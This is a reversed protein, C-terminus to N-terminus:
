EHRFKPRSGWHILKKDTQENPPVEVTPLDLSLVPSDKYDGIGAIKSLTDIANEYRKTIRDDLIDVNALECINWVAVTKCLRLVFANRHENEANFIKDIDYIKWQEFENKNIISARRANAATFYAKVELIAADIGDLIIENDTGSIEDMQYYYMVSKMEDIELFM